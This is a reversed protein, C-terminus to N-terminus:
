YRLVLYRIRGNYWVYLRNAKGEEIFDKIQNPENLQFGNIEIIVTNPSVVRYFPSDKDVKTVVLGNIKKPVSLEDRLKEDLLSIHM